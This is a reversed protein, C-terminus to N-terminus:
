RDALPDHLQDRDQVQDHIPDHVQDRDRGQDTIPDHIRDRDRVQDEAPECSGDQLWLQDQTRLQVQDGHDPAQRQQQVTSTVRETVPAAPQGGAAAAIGVGTGIVLAVAPLAVLLAKRVKTM